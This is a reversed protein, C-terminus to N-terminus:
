STVKFTHWMNWVFGDSCRPPEDVYLSVCVVSRGQTESSSVAVLSHLWLRIARPNAILLDGNCVHTMLHGWQVDGLWQIGNPIHDIIAVILHHGIYGFHSM